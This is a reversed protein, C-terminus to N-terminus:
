QFFFGEEVLTVEHKLAAKIDVLMRPVQTM